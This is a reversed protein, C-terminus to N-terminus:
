EGKLQRAYEESPFHGQSTQVLGDEYMIWEEFGQVNVKNGTGGPGTNTAILTWYFDAGSETPVLSDYRVVMDPLDTMFSQAVETIAERGVAAEGDNIRLSGDEAFFMAVFEPRIGSWAQSYGRAFLEFDFIQQEDPIPNATYSLNIFKWEDEIKILTFVDINRSRPVGYTHLIADAWVFALQGENIHVIYEQVPEYYPRAKSNKVTELFESITMTSNVWEGNKMRAMGINANDLIMEDMAALNYNGAAVLFRDVAAKVAAEDEAWTSPAAEPKSVEDTVQQAPKECSLLLTALLFPLYISKM